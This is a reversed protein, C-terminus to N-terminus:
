VAVNRSLNEVVYSMNKVRRKLEDIGCSTDLWLNCKDGLSEIYSESEHNDRHAEMVPDLALGDRLRIRSHREEDPCALFVSIFGPFADFENPFRCDTIVYAEDPDLRNKLARVWIDPDIRRCYNTGLEQLLRRDKITDRPYLAFEHLKQMLDPPEELFLGKAYYYTKEPGMTRLTTVLRKLEGAFSVPKHESMMSAVTDKGSGMRGVLLYNM